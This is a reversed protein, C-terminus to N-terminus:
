SAHEIRTERQTRREALLHLFENSVCGIGFIGLLMVAEVAFTAIIGLVISCALTIGMVLLRHNPDKFVKMVAWNTVYLVLIAPLYFASLAIVGLEVLSKLGIWQWPRDSREQRNKYWLLGLLGGFLVLWYLYWRRLM